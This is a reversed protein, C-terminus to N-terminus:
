RTEFRQGRPNEKSVLKENKTSRIMNPAGDRFEVEVSVWGRTRTIEEFMVQLKKLLNAQDLPM